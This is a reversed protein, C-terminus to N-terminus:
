PCRFPSSPQVTDCPTVTLYDFTNLICASMQDRCGSVRCCASILQLFSSTGAGLGVEGGVERKRTGQPHPVEVSIPASFIVSRAPAPDPPYALELIRERAGPVMKEAHEPSVKISSFDKEIDSLVRTGILVASM